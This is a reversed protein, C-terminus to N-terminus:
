EVPQHIEALSEEDPGKVIRVTEGEQTVDFAGEFPGETILFRDGQELANHGDLLTRYARAFQEADATDEWRTEWVYGFEGDVSRYPVFQDGAWGESFSHQYSWPHADIVDNHSLMVFISAEGLTDAEPDRDFRTWEDGSHDPVTVNEPANAPYSDPHIIQRSSEPMEEYLDDVAEWGGRQRIDDVFAPGSVYPQVLLQHVGPDVDTAAADDIEPTLCDWEVDCRDLYLEPVLEAEGEIVGQRALERDHTEGAPGLGFQQDQLAHVLEHVLTHKNVTASEGDTVIVIREEVPSYFGLVAAGFMEDLVTSANRDQGIVFLAEWFQDEWEAQVDDVEGGRYRERYEERSIVSVNVTQEFQLGRIVEIRAMSRTTLLELETENLGDEVTISLDDQYTIGDVEGLGDQGLRDDAAPAICGVLAVALVLALLRKTTGDM